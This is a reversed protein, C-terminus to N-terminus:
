TLPLIHFQKPSTYGWKNEELNSPHQNRNKLAAGYHQQAYIQVFINPCINNRNGVRRQNEGFQEVNSEFYQNEHHDELKSHNIAKERERGREKTNSEDIAYISSQQQFELLISKYQWTQNIIHKLHM